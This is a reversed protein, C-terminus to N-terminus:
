KKKRSIYIVFIILGAIILGTILTGIPFLGTERSKTSSTKNDVISINTTNTNNNVTLNTTLTVTPTSIVDITEPTGPIKNVIITQHLMRPYEKVYVSYIGPQNFIYDYKQYNWRLYASRNKWLAQESIITLPEDPTADNQWIVTDGVNITLTNNEYPAPKNTTIGIVRYFGYDQDVFSKYAVPTINSTNKMVENNIASISSPLLIFVVVLLAVLTYRNRAIIKM